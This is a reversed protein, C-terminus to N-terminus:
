TPIFIAVKSNDEVSFSQMALFFVIFMFGGLIIPGLLTMIIFIKGKTIERFEFNIIAKLKDM